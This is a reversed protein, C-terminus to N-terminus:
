QAVAYACVCLCVCVIVCVCMCVCVCLSQPRPIGITLDSARAAETLARRRNYPSPKTGVFLSSMRMSVIYTVRILNALVM